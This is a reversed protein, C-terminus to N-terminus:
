LSSGVRPKIRVIPFIVITAGTVWFMRFWFLALCLLGDFLTAGTWVAGLPLLHVVIFSLEKVVSPKRRQEPKNIDAVEAM